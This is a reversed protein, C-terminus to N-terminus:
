NGTWGRSIFKRAAAFSASREKAGEENNAAVAFTLTSKGKSGSAPSVSIWKYNEDASVTWDAYAEIDTTLSTSGAPGVSLTIDQRDPVIVEPEPEPTPEPEPKPKKCSVVLMLVLALVGFWKLNFKM